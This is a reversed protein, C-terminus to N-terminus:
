LINNTKEKIGKQDCSSATTSNNCYINIIKKTKMKM